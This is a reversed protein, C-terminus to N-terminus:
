DGDDWGGHRPAVSESEHVLFVHVGRVSGICDVQKRTRYM